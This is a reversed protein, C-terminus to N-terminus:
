MSNPQQPVLKPVPWSYIGAPSWLLQQRTLQSPIVGLPCLFCCIPVTCCLEFCLLVPFYYIRVSFLTHAGSELWTAKPVEAEDLIFFWLRTRFHTTSLNICLGYYLSVIFNPSKTKHVESLRLSM